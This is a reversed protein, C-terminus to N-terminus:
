KTTDIFHSNVKSKSYKSIAQANSDQNALKANINDIASQLKVSNEDEIKVIMDMVSHIDSIIADVKIKNESGSPIQKIYNFDIKRILKDIEDLISNKLSIVRELSDDDENLISDREQEVLDQMKIYQLKLEEVNILIEDEEIEIEQGKAKNTGFNFLSSEVDILKNKALIVADSKADNKKYDIYIRLEINRKLLLLRGLEILENTDLEKITNQEYYVQENNEKKQKHSNAYYDGSEQNGEKKPSIRLSQAAAIKIYDSKNTM